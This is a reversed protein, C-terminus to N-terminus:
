ALLCMPNEPRCVVYWQFDVSLKEVALVRRSRCDVDKFVEPVGLGVM